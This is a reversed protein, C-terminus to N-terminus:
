LARALLDGLQLLALALLQVLLCWALQLRQHLLDIM